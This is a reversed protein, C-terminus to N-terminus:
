LAYINSVHDQDILVLYDKDPRPELADKEDLSSVVIFRTTAASIVDAQANIAAINQKSGPVLDFDAIGSSFTLISPPESACFDKVRNKLHIFAWFTCISDQKRSHNMAYKSLSVYRNDPSIYVRGERKLASLIKGYDSDNLYNLLMRLQRHEVVGFITLLRILVTLEQGKFDKSFPM